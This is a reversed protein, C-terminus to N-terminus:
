TTKEKTPPTTHDTWCVPCLDDPRGTLDRCEQVGANAAAYRRRRDAELLADEEALDAFEPRNPDDWDLRRM